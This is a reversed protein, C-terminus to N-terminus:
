TVPTDDYEVMLRGTTPDVYLNVVPCKGQPPATNLGETSVVEAVEVNVVLERNNFTFGM